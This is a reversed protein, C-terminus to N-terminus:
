QKKAIIFVADLEFLLEERCVDAVVNVSPINPIGVQEIVKQFVPFDEKRKIFVTVECLDQLTAGEGEALAAVVNLSQHIQAASDGAHVSKGQEDISATGSVLILKSSSDEIIMARSFASGYRFPSRQKTGSIARVITASQDSRHIAFVDMTAPFGSPNKGEIGTSAPLFIKEEQVKTSGLFGYDSYCRNRIVNFDTYWDLIGSLYIWTRVVDQYSAGETRLLREAQHFMTESQSTRSAQNSTNGGNVSQLMYFTAGNLNWARGKPIGQDLITRIQIEPTSHIARMQMGAFHAGSCSMGEIYTIPTHTEIAYKQFTRARIETLQMQFEIDGFCREQVIQYSSVSLLQAIRDYIQEVSQSPDADHETISATLFLQNQATTIFIKHTPYTEIMRNIMLEM